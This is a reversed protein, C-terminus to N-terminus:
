KEMDAPCHHPDSSGGGNLHETDERLAGSIGRLGREKGGVDRPRHHHTEGAAASRTKRDPTPRVISPLQSQPSGGITPKTQSQDRENGEAEETAREPSRSGLKGCLARARREPTRPFRLRTQIVRTRRPRRASMTKTIIVFGPVQRVTGMQGPELEEEERVDGHGDDPDPAPQHHLEEADTGRHRAVRRTESRETLVDLPDRVPHEDGAGQERECAADQQDDLRVEVPETVVPDHDPEREICRGEEGSQQKESRLGATDALEVSAPDGSAPGRVNLNIM